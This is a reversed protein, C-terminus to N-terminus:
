EWDSADAIVSANIELRKMKLIALVDPLQASVDAQQGPDQVPDLLQYCMCRGAEITPIWSEQFMNLRM